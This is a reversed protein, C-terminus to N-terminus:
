LAHEVNCQSNTQIHNTILNICPFSDFHRYCKPCPTIQRIIINLIDNFSILDEIYMHWNNRRVNLSCIIESFMYKYNIKFFTIHPLIKSIAIIDLFLWYDRQRDVCLMMGRPTDYSSYGHYCSLIHFVMNRDTALFNCKRCLYSLHRKKCEYLEYFDSQFINTKSSAIINTDCFNNICKMATNVIIMNLKLTAFISSIYLIIEAIDIAMNAIIEM